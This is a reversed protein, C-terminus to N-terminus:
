ERNTRRVTKRRQGSPKEEVPEGNILGNLKELAEAELQRVRERTLGLRRGIEKLTLPENDDLGYRLRLITAERETIETLMKDIADGEVDDFIMDDPAPTREDPLMDTLAAGGGVHGSQSGSSIARVARKIIQVKKEPLQMHEAMEQITPTRGLKEQLAAQSEKWRSVMEVMYAPIHIPQLANIMARKIGQRIWWSAYTSFRAGQDPRFGEVARLLGLNGEEILDSLPMGRRVYCKAINVVLRLNARIMRERAQAGAEEFREREALSIEGLAFREAASSAAIIRNALDREEEASLLSVENIQCLYHQLGAEIVVASGGRPM